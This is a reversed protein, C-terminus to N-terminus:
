VSSAYNSIAIDSPKTIMLSKSMELLFSMKITFHLWSPFEFYLANRLCFSRDRSIFAAIDDKRTGKM